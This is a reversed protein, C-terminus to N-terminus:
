PSQCYNAWEWEREKSGIRSDYTIQTHQQQPWQTKQKTKNKGIINIKWPSAKPIDRLYKRQFGGQGKWKKKTRGSYRAM